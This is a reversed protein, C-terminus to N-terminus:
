DNMQMKKVCFVCKTEDPVVLDGQPNLLSVHKVFAVGQVEVPQFIADGFQHEIGWARNIFEVRRGNGAEALRKVHQFLLM